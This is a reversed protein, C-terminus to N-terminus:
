PTPAPIDFVQSRIVALVNADLGRASWKDLLVKAALAASNGSIQRRRSLKYLQRAYDLYPVYLVTQVGQEDLVQKTKTEMACLLATAAAYRAWMRERQADLTQKVRETNFKVDWAHQRKVADSM